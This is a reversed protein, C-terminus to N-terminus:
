VIVSFCASWSAIERREFDVLGDLLNENSVALMQLYDAVAVEIEERSWDQM